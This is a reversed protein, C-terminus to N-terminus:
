AEPTDMGGSYIEFEPFEGDRISDPLIDIVGDLYEVTISYHYTGIPYTVIGVDITAAGDVFDMAENIIETAGWVKLTVTKASEDDITVPLQFTENQRTTIKIM